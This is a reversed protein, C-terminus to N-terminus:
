NCGETAMNNYKAKQDSTLKNWGKDQLCAQFNKDKACKKMFCNYGSMKRKTKTGKNQKKMTKVKIELCKNISDDIFKKKDTWLRVTKLKNLILNSNCPDGEYMMDVIGMQLPKKEIVEEVVDEESLIIM